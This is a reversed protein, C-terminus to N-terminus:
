LVDIGAGALGCFQALNDGGADLSRPITRYDSCRRLAEKTRCFSRGFWATAPECCRDRKQVIWQV